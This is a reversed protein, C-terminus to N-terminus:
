ASASGTVPGGGTGRLGRHRSLIVTAVTALAIVVGSALTSAGVWYGALALVGALQVLSIHTPRSRRAFILVLASLLVIAGGLIWMVREVQITTGFELWTPDVLALEMRSGIEWAAVELAFTTPLWWYVARELVM